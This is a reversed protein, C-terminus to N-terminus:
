NRQKIMEESREYSMQLSKLDPIALTGGPTGNKKIGSIPQHTKGETLSITIHPSVERDVLIKSVQNSLDEFHKQAKYLAKLQQELNM